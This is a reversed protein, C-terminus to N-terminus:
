VPLDGNFWTAHASWHSLRWPEEVRRDVMNLQEETDRQCPETTAFSVTRKHFSPCARKGVVTDGTEFDRVQGESRAKNQSCTNNIATPARREM